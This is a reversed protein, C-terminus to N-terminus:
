GSVFRRYVKAAEFTEKMIFRCKAKDSESGTDTAIGDHHIVQIDPQYVITVDHSDCWRKLIYEEFYFRTEPMFVPCEKAEQMRLNIYDADFILCAGVLCVKQQYRTYDMGTGKATNKRFYNVMYGSTLGYFTLFLQNLLITKCVERSAPADKRKPSQHIDKEPVYVDPGLVGFHSNRYEQEIRGLLDPQRFETDNNTVIYFQPAFAEMALLVGENNARSFGDNQERLLVKVQTDGCYLSQLVKGSGNPSANDVVVIGIDEQRKLQKISAICQKTEDTANYHLIIFAFKRVGTM